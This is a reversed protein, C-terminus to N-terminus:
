SIGLNALYQHWLSGGSWVDQVTANALNEMSM